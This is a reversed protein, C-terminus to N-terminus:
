AVVKPIQNREWKLISLDSELMAIHCHICVEKWIPSQTLPQECNECVFNTM